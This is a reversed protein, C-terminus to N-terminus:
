PMYTFPLEPESQVHGFMNLFVNRDPKRSEAATNEEPYPMACSRCTICCIFSMNRSCEPKRSQVGIGKVPYLKDCSWKIRCVCFPCSGSNKWSEVRL